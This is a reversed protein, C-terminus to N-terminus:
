FSTGLRIPPRWVALDTKGDADYDASIPIDGPIGWQVKYPPVGTSPKIYWNGEAPRWVALDTKGDGDYDAPVPVDGSLGFQLVVANTPNTSEFIHWTGDSPRWISYDLKADGDFDGIVRLDGTTGWDNQAVAFQACLFVAWLPLVRSSIFRKVADGFSPM